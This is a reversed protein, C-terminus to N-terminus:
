EFWRDSSDPSIRVFFLHRGPDHPGDCECDGRHIGIQVFTPRCQRHHDRNQCSNTMAGYRQQTGLPALAGMAGENIPQLLAHARAIRGPRWVRVLSQDRTKQKLNEGQCKM